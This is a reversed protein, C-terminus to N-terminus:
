LVVEDVITDYGLCGDEDPEGYVAGVEKGNYYMKM